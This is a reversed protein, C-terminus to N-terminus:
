QKETESLIQSIERGYLLVKKAVEKARPSKINLAKVKKDLIYGLNPIESELDRHGGSPKLTVNIRKKIGLASLNGSDVVTGLGIIVERSVMIDKRNPYKQAFDILEPGLTTTSKFYPDFQIFNKSEGKTKVPYGSIQDPVVKDTTYVEDPNRNIPNDLSESLRWVLSWAKGRVYSYYLPNYTPLAIKIPKGEEWRIYTGLFSGGVTQYHAKPNFIPSLNTVAERLCQMSDGFAYVIGRHPRLQVRISKHFTIDSLKYGVWLLDEITQQTVIVHDVQGIIPIPTGWEGFRGVIPSFKHKGPTIFVSIEHAGHIDKNPDFGPTFNLQTYGPIMLPMKSIINLHNTVFDLCKIQGDEHGVLSTEQIPPPAALRFFELLDERKPDEETWESLDWFAKSDRLILLNRTTAAPSVLDSVPIGYKRMEEYYVVPYGALFADPLPQPCFGALNVLRHTRQPHGNIDLRDELKVQNGLKRIRKDPGISVEGLGYLDQIQPLSLIPKLSADLLQGNGYYVIFKSSTMFQYWEQPTTVLKGDVIPLGMPSVDLHVVKTKTFDPPSVSLHYVDAETKYTYRM